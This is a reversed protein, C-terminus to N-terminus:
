GHMRILRLRLCGAVNSAMSGADDDDDDDEDDDEDTMVSESDDLSPSSAAVVNTNSRILSLRCVVNLSLFMQDYRRQSIFFSRALSRCTMSGTSISSVPLVM